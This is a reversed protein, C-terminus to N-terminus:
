FHSMRVDFWHGGFHGEPIESARADLAIMGDGSGIPEMDERLRAAEEISKKLFGYM